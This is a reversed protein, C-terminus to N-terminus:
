AEYKEIGDRQFDILIRKLANRLYNHKFSKSKTFLLLRKDIYSNKINIKDSIIAIGRDKVDYIIM